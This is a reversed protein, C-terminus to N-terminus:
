YCVVLVVFFVIEDSRVTSKWGPRTSCRVLDITLLARM